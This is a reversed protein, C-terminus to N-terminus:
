QSKRILFGMFKKVGFKKMWDCNRFSKRVRPFFALEDLWFDATLIFWDSRLAHVNNDAGRFAHLTSHVTNVAAYIGDARVESWASWEM